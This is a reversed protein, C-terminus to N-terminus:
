HSATRARGVLISGRRQVNLATRLFPASICEMDQQAKDKLCRMFGLRRSQPHAFTPCEMDQQAPFQCVFKGNMALNAGLQVRDQGPGTSSRFDVRIVLPRGQSWWAVPGATGGVRDFAVRDVYM